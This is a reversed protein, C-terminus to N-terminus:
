YVDVQDVDIRARPGAPSTSRYLLGLYFSSQLYTVRVRETPGSDLVKGKSDIRIAYYNGKSPM